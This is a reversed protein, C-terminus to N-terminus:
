DTCKDANFSRELLPKEARQIDAQRTNRTAGNFILMSNMTNCVGSKETNTVNSCAAILCSALIFFIATSLCKM